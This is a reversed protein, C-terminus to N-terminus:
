CRRRCGGNCAACLRKPQRAAPWYGEGADAGLSTDCESCADFAQMQVTSVLSTQAPAYSSEAARTFLAFAADFDKSFGMSGHLFATALIHQAEHHVPSSQSCLKDFFATITEVEASKQLRELAMRCGAAGLAEALVYMQASLSDDRVRCGDCDNSLRVEWGQAGGVWVGCLEDSAHM